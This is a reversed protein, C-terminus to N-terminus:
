KESFLTFELSVRTFDGMNLAGGHLLKDHFVVAEGPKTNALEVNLQTVDEDLQPKMFGNRFEGHYQWIEKQSHPVVNLGNRGVSCWLAIWVKTRQYGEPTKGHGLEWFWADAHLPGTDEPENPRVLRWYVEEAEIGEENSIIFAGYHQELAKVLSTKRLVDVATQPLIRNAKCWIKDHQLVHSFDHYREIGATEFDDVSNPQDKKIVELWQESVCERMAQLEDSLLKLDLSFGCGAELQQNLEM